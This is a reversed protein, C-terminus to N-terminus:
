PNVKTGDCKYVAAAAGARLDHIYKSLNIYMLATTSGEKGERGRKVM